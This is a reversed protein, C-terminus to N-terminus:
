HHMEFCWCHLFDKEEYLFHPRYAVEIGPHSLLYRIGNCPAITVRMADGVLNRCTFFDKIGTSPLLGAKIDKVSGEGDKGLGKM